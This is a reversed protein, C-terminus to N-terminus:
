FKLSVSVSPYPEEPGYVSSIAEESVTDFDYLHADVYADVIGALYALVFFLIQQNRKEQYRDREGQFFSADPGEPDQAYKDRFEVYSDNYDITRYGFYGLLGYLIPVKWISGNYVQGYGPLVASIMAVKWPQMRRDGGETQQSSENQAEVFLAGQIVDATTDTDPFAPEEARACSPSTMTALAAAFFITVAIRSGKSM